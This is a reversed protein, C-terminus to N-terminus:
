TVLGVAYRGMMEAMLRVAHARIRAGAERDEPSDSAELRDAADAYDLAWEYQDPRM